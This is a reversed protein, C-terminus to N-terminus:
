VGSVATRFVQRSWVLSTSYRRIKPNAMLAAQGWAEFAEPTHAHVVLWFDCEGSVSYCQSVRTESRMQAIFAAIAQPDEREFYVQVIFSLGQRAPDVLAVDAFITGNDRMAKLRRRVASASLNVQAGIAAHSMQNNRQVIALIAEDFRDHAIKQM